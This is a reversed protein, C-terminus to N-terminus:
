VPLKRDFHATIKLREDPKLAEKYRKIAEKCTKSMNTSCIYVGNGFIDIKDYIVRKM